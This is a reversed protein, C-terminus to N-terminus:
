QQARVLNELPQSLTKFKLNKPEKTLRVVVDVGLERCHTRFYERLCRKIRNRTPARRVVKRALSMGLRSEGESPKWYLTYFAGRLIYRKPRSSSHSYSFVERFNEAKLLRKTKGFSLNM